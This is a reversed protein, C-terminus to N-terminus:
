SKYRWQAYTQLMVQQEHYQKGWLKLYKHANFLQQKTKCSNLVDLVKNYAEWTGTKM